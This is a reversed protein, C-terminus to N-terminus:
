DTYEAEPGGRLGFNSEARIPEKKDDPINVLMIADGGSEHAVAIFWGDKRREMFLSPATPEPMGKDDVPGLVVRLAEAVEVNVPSLKDYDHTGGDDEFEPVEAAFQHKPTTNIAWPGSIFEDENDDIFEEAEAKTPFAEPIYAEGHVVVFLQNFEPENSV